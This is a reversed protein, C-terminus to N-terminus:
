EKRYLGENFMYSATQYFSIAERLLVSDMPIKKAEGTTFDPAFMQAQKRPSLIILNGNKIYGLKQYTSIFARERGPELKLIDYGFFKSTYNMNMLGLVTPLLDVQSMLRNNTSATVLQPAYIMCPIQYGTVPLEVKGAASACHDAVIVFLTNNFWPKQQARKLFDNIAWDTYTVAGDRSQDDPNNPIRGKPFTYPRHNSVTMVQNFFLKQTNYSKDCEKLAQTFIDEDCAGWTTTHHIESSPFDRKDVVSYGNAGFYPGMNDFWANGGYIFKCDYGKKGLVNGLSFLNANHPRRVISQGPTPPIALSLAELGRVTRTGTAYLNSFFLSHQVLSDLYPTIKQKSGKYQMYSGSLSEVSIMVVNWRKETGTDRVIRETSFLNSNTYTTNNTALTTRATEFAASDNITLYYKKYDLQNNLYATGFEYMGNGALENAYNNNSFRRYRNTIFFFCGTATSAYLLFLLTRKGVRAPHPASLLIYKRIFYFLALAVLFIGGLIWFIPYSEVINGIVEHTYVLYDVAIFDYRNGYEQWFIIEGCLTFVLMFLSIIFYGYLIFRHWKKKFLIRPVLWLYLVLPACFFLGTILDYFFGIVFPLLWQLPHFGIEGISLLLLIFRTIFAFLIFLTLLLVAPGYRHHFLRTLKRLATKM